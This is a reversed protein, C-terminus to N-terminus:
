EVKVFVPPEDWDFSHQKVSTIHGKADSFFEIRNLEIVRYIDGSSAGSFQDKEHRPYINWSGMGYTMELNNMDNTFIFLDGYAPNRYLGTYAALPRSPHISRDIDHAGLYTEKKYWPDPYNCLISQNFWSTINNASDFLYNHLATQFM